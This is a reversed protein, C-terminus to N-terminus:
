CELTESSSGIAGDPIDEPQSSPVPPPRDTDDTTHQSPQLDTTVQPASKTEQKLPSDTVESNCEAPSHILDKSVPHAAGKDDIASPLSSSSNSEEISQLNTSADAQDAGNVEQTSATLTANTPAVLEENVTTEGLVSSSVSHVSSTDMTIQRPLSTQSGGQNPTCSAADVTEAFPVVSAVQVADVNDMGDPSGELIEDLKSKKVKAGRAMQVKNRTRPDVFVSVVKYLAALWLPPDLIVLTNLRQCYHSQLVQSVAKFTRKSPACKLSFGGINLVVDMMQNKGRSLVEVAACAREMMYIVTIVYAEEKTEKCSRVGLVLVSRGTAGAKIFMPQVSLEHSILERYKESLAADKADKITRDEFCTRILDIRYKQRFESTNKLAQLTMEQDGQAGDYYRAVERLAMGDRMTERDTIVGMRCANWYSYSSQAVYERDVDSLRGMINKAHLLILLLLM